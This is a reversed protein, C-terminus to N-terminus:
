TQFQRIPLFPWDRGCTIAQNSGEMIWNALWIRIYRTGLIGGRARARSAIYLILFQRGRASTHPRQVNYISRRARTGSEVYWLALSALDRSPTLRTGLGWGDSRSPSPRTFFPLMGPGSAPIQSDWDSRLM